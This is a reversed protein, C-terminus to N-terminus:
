TGTEVLLPEEVEKRMPLVKATSGYRIRGKLGMIPRELLLYSLTSLVLTLGLALSASTLVAFSHRMYGDLRATVDYLFFRSYTLHFVYASYSLAGLWCVWTQSCMRNLVSGEEMVAVVIAVATVNALPIWVEKGAYTMSWELGNYHTLVLITVVGCLAAWKAYPIAKRYARSECILNLLVGMLIADGRTATFFTMDPTSIFLLPAALRVVWCAVILASVAGILKRRDHLLWVILPWLLYFQEEVALSWFHIMFVPGTPRNAYGPVLNQIYLFHIWFNSEMPFHRMAYFVAIALLAVYYVPFVRLIRRAYFVKFYGERDQTHYLIGGILYGSLVFFAPVAFAGLSALATFVKLRTTGPHAIQDPRLYHACFVLLFGYGRIGALCLQYRSKNQPAERHIQGM